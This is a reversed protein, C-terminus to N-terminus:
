IVYVSGLEVSPWKTNDDSRSLSAESKNSKSLVDPLYLDEEEM